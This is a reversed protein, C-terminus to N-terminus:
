KSGEKEDKKKETLEVLNIKKIEITRDISITHTLVKKVDLQKENLIASYNDFTSIGRLNEFCGKLNLYQKVIACDSDSFTDELFDLIFAKDVKDPFCNKFSTSCSSLERDTSDTEVKDLIQEDFEYKENDKPSLPYQHVNLIHCIFIIAFAKKKLVEIDEDEYMPDFENMVSEVNILNKILHFTKFELGVIDRKLTDDHINPIKFHEITLDIEIHYNRVLLKFNHMKNYVVDNDHFKELHIDEPLLKLKLLHEESPYQHVVKVKDNDDTDNSSNESEKKKIVFGKFALTCILNRYLHRIIDRFESKQVEISIHGTNVSTLKQYHYGRYGFWTALISFCLGWFAIWFTPGASPILDFIEYDSTNRVVDKVDKGLDNLFDYPLSQLYHITSLIKM